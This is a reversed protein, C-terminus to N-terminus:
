ELKVEIAGAGILGKTTDDSDATALTMRTVVGTVSVNDLAPLAPDGVSVTLEPTQCSKVQLEVSQSAVKGFVSTECMAALGNSTALAGRMQNLMLGQANAYRQSSLTRAAAYTLGLGIVSALVIALMAELLADGRQGKHQRILLESGNEDISAVQKIM